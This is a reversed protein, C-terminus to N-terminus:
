LHKPTVNAGSLAADLMGEKKSNHKKHHHRRMGEKPGRRGNEDTNVWDGGEGDDDLGDSQAKGAAEEDYGTGWFVPPENAGLMGEYGRRMGEYKHLNAGPHDSVTFRLDAGPAFDLGEKTLSVNYARAVLILVGVMTVAMMLYEFQELSQLVKEPM